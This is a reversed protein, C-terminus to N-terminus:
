AKSLIQFKLFVEGALGIVARDGLRVWTRPLPSQENPSPLLTGDVTTGLFSHNSILFEGTEPIRRITVHLRSVANSADLALDLLTDPNRRGITIEDRTMWFVKEEGQEVYDIRAFEPSPVGQPRRTATYSGENLSEGHEKEEKRAPEEILVPGGGWALGAAAGLLLLFGAAMVIPSEIRAVLLALVLGVGIGIEAALRTPLEDIQHPLSFSLLRRPRFRFSREAPRPPLSPLSVQLDAPKLATSLFEQLDAYRRLAARQAAPIGGSLYVELDAALTAASPYRLAPDFALTKLIVNRLAPSVSDPLPKPPSGSRIWNEVEEGDEGDFPLYGAVMEYLIVGVAWLDSAQNVSGQDLREPPAYPLSAFPNVTFRRTSTLHKAIGFDLLRVRGDPQIRINLPKLDGHVIGVVQLGGMKGVFNHVANLCQCLQLAILVAASEPLPGSHLISSLDNGQVYELSAWFLDGDVGTEYVAAVAPAREALAKQLALGTQEAELMEPDTRSVRAAKLAVEEGREPDWALYVDALAGRGIAKRLEFRGLKQSLIM